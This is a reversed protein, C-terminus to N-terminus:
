GSLLLCSHLRLCPLSCRAETVSVRRDQSHRSESAEGRPLRLFMEVRSGADRDDFFIVGDYLEPFESRQRLRVVYRLHHSGGEAVALDLHTNGSTDQVQEVELQEEICRHFSAVAGLLPEDITKTGAKKLTPRKDEQRDDGSTSGGTEPTARSAGVSFSDRADDLRAGKRSEEQCLETFLLSTPVVGSPQGMAEKRVLAPDIHVLFYVFGTRICYNLPAAITIGYIKAAAPMSKRLTGSFKRLYSNEKGDGNEVALKSDIGVNVDKRAQKEFGSTVVDEAWEELVQYLAQLPCDIAPSDWDFDPCAIARYSIGECGRQSCLHHFYGYGQQSPLPGFRSKTPLINLVTANGPLFMSLGLGAGETGVLLRCEAVLQLQRAVPLSEPALRIVEFGSPAFALMAQQVEHVNSLRRESGRREILLMVQNRRPMQPLSLRLAEITEPAPFDGLENLGSVVFLEDAYYVCTPDFTMLRSSPIGLLELLPLAFSGPYVLFTTDAPVRDLLALALTGSLFHFFNCSFSRIVPALRTVHILGSGVRPSASVLSGFVRVEDYFPNGSRPDPSLGRLVHALVLGRSNIHLHKRELRGGRLSVDGPRVDELM